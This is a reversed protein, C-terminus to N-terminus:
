KTKRVIDAYDLIQYFTNQIKSMTEYFERKGLSGLGNPFYAGKEDLLWYCKDNNTLSLNFGLQNWILSKLSEFRDKIMKNTIREM